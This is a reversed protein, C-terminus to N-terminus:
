LYVWPMSRQQPNVTVLPALEIVISVMDVFASNTLIDVAEADLEVEISKVPSEAV